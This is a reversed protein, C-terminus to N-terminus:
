QFSYQDEELRIYRQHTLALCDYNQLFTRLTKHWGESIMELLKV